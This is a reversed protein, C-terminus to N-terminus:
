NMGSLTALDPGTNSPHFTAEILIHPPKVPKKDKIGQIYERQCETNFLYHSIEDRIFRGHILGTLLLHVAEAITSKGAENDGVLINVGPQLTLRFSRKYCKFNEIILTSITM